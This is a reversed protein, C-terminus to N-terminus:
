DKLESVAASWLDLGGKGGPRDSAFFLRTGGSAIFPASDGRKAEPHALSKIIAPMSWAGGIRERKSRFIASKGEHDGELYMTLGNPVLSAGHFGAPFGVEKPEKIGGANPGTTTMLMWGDKTKRSFYMEKGAPTIFVRLEDEPTNVQPMPNPRVKDVKRYIDFNKANKLKEDPVLNTSFYLYQNFFFPGREDADKEGYYLTGAGFAGTASGRKAVYIDFAGKANTAYLLALGDPTLAPDTEDAETNVKDLNTPKVDQAHLPHEALLLALAPVLLLVLLRM